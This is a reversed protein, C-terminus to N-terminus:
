RIASEPIFAPRAKDDRATPEAVHLRNLIGDVKKSRYKAEVRHQLLLECATTQIKALNIKLIM